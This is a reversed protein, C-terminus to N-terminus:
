RVEVLEAPPIKYWRQAPTVSDPLLDIYQKIKKKLHVQINLVMMLNLM